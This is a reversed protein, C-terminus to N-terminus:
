PSRGPSAAVVRSRMALFSPLSLGLLGSFGVQLFERRLVSIPHRHIRQMASEGRDTALRVEFTRNVASAPLTAFVFAGAILAAAAIISYIKLM